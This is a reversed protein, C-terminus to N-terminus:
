FKLLELPLICDFHYIEMTVVFIYYFFMEVFNNKIWLLLFRLTEFTRPSSCYVFALAFRKIVM